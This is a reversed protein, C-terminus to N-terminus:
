KEYETILGKYYKWALIKLVHNELEEMTIINNEIAEKIDQFNTKYDTTILLDNGALVALRAKNEINSTAGMELDDTLTIGSFNLDETLLQHVKLSLSAPNQNDISTVINHSILVCEADAEIGEKFPPIDHEFINELSRMDTSSGTHTDINNGYGPFHKLAYSVGTKKSAEIVAKAYDATNQTDLKVTRDYIYDEDNYAVDVVPALNLNLGLSYLLKSKELTDEKIGEIGGSKYVESPSAFPEDRLNKNSSVRVVSGGEEDVATILPIKAEKNAKEIMQKVEEKTKNQFDKAYFILGGFNYTSLDKLSDAGYRVLLMQGIKENLSMTQMKKRALEYYDYFLDLDVEEINIVEYDTVQCSQVEETKVLTGECSIKIDSGILLNETDMKFTYQENEKNKVTVLDNDKKIVKAEFSIIDNEPNRKRLLSVGMLSILIIVVISITWLKNM